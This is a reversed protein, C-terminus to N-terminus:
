HNYINYSFGPAVIIIWIREAYHYIEVVVTFVSYNCPLEWRRGGPFDLNLSWNSDLQIM